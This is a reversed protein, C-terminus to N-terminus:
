QVHDHLIALGGFVEVSRSHPSQKFQDIAPHHAADDNCLQVPDDPANLVKGFEELAKAM